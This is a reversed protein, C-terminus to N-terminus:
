AGSLAPKSIPAKHRYLTMDVSRIMPPIKLDMQLFRVIGAVREDPGEILRNYDCPLMEMHSQRAVWAFLKELHREFSQRLEENPAPSLAADRQELMESQSALIEDMNRKMFIIKYHREPPLDYLLMSVVKVAKGEAQGLWTSDDKLRKVPDYEYYGNPNNGDPKRARDTLVPM